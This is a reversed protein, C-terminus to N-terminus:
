IRDEDCHIQDISHHHAPAYAQSFKLENAYSRHQDGALVLLDIWGLKLVENFASVSGVCRILQSLFLSLDKLEQVEVQGEWRTERHQLRVNLGQDSMFKFDAAIYINCYLV